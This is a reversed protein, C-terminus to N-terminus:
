GPSPGAASRQRAIVRARASSGSRSARSTWRAQRRQSCGVLPRRGSSLKRYGRLQPVSGAGPLWGGGMSHRGSAPSRGPRRVGGGAQRVLAGRGRVGFVVSRVGSVRGASVPQLGGFHGPRSWGVPRVGSVGSPRRRLRRVGLLQDSGCRGGFVMRAATGPLQPLPRPSCRPCPPCWLASVGAAVATASVASGAAASAGAPAADPNVAAASVPLSGRSDAPRWPAAGYRCPPQGGSGWAAAPRGALPHLTTVLSASSSEHAIRRLCGVERAPPSSNANM